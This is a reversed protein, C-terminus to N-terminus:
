GSLVSAHQDIRCHTTEASATNVATPNAAQPPECGLREAVAVCGGAVWLVERVDLVLVFLGVADV